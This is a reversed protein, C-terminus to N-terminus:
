PTLVEITYFESVLVSARACDEVRFTLNYAGAPLAGPALTALLTQYKSLGTQTNIVGGTDRNRGLVLQGELNFAFFKVTAPDRGLCADNADYYSAWATIADTARFTRQESGGPGSGIGTKTVTLTRTAATGDGQYRALAFNASSFGAAVLKGDPQLILASAEETGGFGTTVKGGAGFTADLSGDVNYRALAFDAGSAGAAVLKGDPQLILANAGASGGFSTALKGGSGFTSDLTANANYRALAFDAGSAVAAVLKGDPQRILAFAAGPGSIGVTTKGGIGFTADLSGDVNYRALAFDTGSAGAAVLKGDPQLILARAVGPERFGTTVEGGAGFTPDLSGDVNYRALAFDAGSAGAAVLKGDPQRILAFANETGGFDTTALGGAGFSTDLTGDTNYRALVFDVGSSGAAVLKGDPQLILARAVGAGGIGSMVLGGAGFTADLSSDANYRALAFNAGSVGAAVLKGDPQLVLAFANETGGFDTTVKGGVGFMLDLEGPAAHAATPSLIVLWATLLSAVVTRTDLHSSQFRAARPRM